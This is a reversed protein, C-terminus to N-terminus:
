TVAPTSDAGFISYLTFEIVCIAWAFGFVNMPTTSNGFREPSKLVGVLHRTTSDYNGYKELGKRYLTKPKPSPDERRATGLVQCWCMMLDSFFSSSSSSSSSGFFSVPCSTWSRKTQGGHQPQNFCDQGNFQNCVHILKPATSTLWMSSSSSSLSSFCESEASATKCSNM